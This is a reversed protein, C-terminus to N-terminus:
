VEDGIIDSELIEDLKKDIAELDVPKKEEQSAVPLDLTMGTPVTEFAPVTELAAAEEMVTAPAAFAVSTRRPGADAANMRDRRMSVETTFTEPRVKKDAGPKFARMFVRLLGMHRELEFRLASVKTGDMMLYVAYFYGYRDQHIPYAIKHKGLSVTEEITVGTETLKTQVEVLKAAAEEVTASGSIILLLEYM